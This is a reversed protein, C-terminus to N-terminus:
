SLESESIVKNKNDFLKKLISFAYFDSIEYGIKLDLFSYNQLKIGKSLAFVKKM